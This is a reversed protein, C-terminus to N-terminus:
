AGSCDNSNDNRKVYETVKKELNYELNYIDLGLRKNETQLRKIEIEQEKITERLKLANSQDAHLTVTLIDRSHNLKNITENSYKLDELLMKIRENLAGYELGFECLKNWNIGSEKKRKLIDMSVFTCVAHKGERPEKENKMDKGEFYLDKKYIYVGFVL